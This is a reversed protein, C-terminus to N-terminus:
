LEVKIWGNASSIVEAMPWYNNNLKLTILKARGTIDMVKLRVSDRDGKNKVAKIFSDLNPTPQEDVETILQGRIGFHQAPSGFNQRSVYVGPENIGFRTRLARHPEQIFAGAWVLVRDTGKGSLTITDLNIDLVEDDRAITLKVSPKQSAIEVDRYSTLIEGDVALLLDGSKLLESAPSGKWTNNVTLLQHNNPNKKAIRELWDEPIGLRRALVFSIMTWEVEMSQLTGTGSAHLNLLDTIHKSSVAWSNSKASHGNAQFGLIMAVIDGADNLFVGSSHTYPTDTSIVMMNADQFRAVQSSNVQLPGFSSIKRSQVLIQYNYNTGAAHILDGYAPEVASLKAETVPTTGLLKPDYQLLAMNHLPHLFVVEAPIQISGAFTILVEGVSSPVTTRDVVVLGKKKDIILGSGSTRGSGIEDIAYPTSFNVWVLSPAIQNALDSDQKPHQANQVELPEKEPATALSKCQWDGSDKDHDCVKAKHWHRDNKVITLSDNHPDRIGYYRVPFEKNDPIDELAKIADDLNNIDQKNISIIVSGSGIGSSGFMFGGTALVVGKVPRNLHRAQQYSLNHLVARGIELYRSPTIDALSGVKLEGSILRGGRLYDIQIVDGVHDDLYAELPIFASVLQDDVKFLIDGPELLKAAPGEPLIHEVVLAGQAEPDAERFIDQEKDKLGLRVLEAYSKHIFTTELTGRVVSKGAQILELAHKARDLPFFMNTNASFAGGAQLAIVNGQENIVPSGSSGGSAGSAAQFYFTNFDNFRHLGYDPAQRNLRALTGDLISLKEGADNGIVRIEIGVSALDPRLSLSNVTLHRLKQPDYQFFGFDHVPDRYIPKLEVEEQNIFIATATVPGPQVIHRNTMIIGKEADVIFGTGQSVMPRSTEFARPVELQISVISSTVKDITSKWSDTEAFVNSNVLCAIIFLGTLHISLKKTLLKM